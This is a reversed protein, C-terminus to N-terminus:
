VQQLKISHAGLWFDLFFWRPHFSEGSQNRSRNSFKSGRYAQIARRGAMEPVHKEVEREDETVNPATSDRDTFFWLMTEVRDGRSREVM